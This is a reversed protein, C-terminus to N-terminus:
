SSPGSGEGDSGSTVVRNRGRRKALYLARDAREFLQVPAMRDGAEGSFALGISITVKLQQENWPLRADEVLLRLREALQEGGVQTTERAVLVFEEGGYRALVDEQRITRALTDAVLRLMADGAPHGWTDNIEKFHDIDIALVALARGHRQAASLEASLREEFHRRNYLGTLVDRLAAELLRREYEDEVGSAFSFRLVTVSGVQIKDGGRLNASHVRAGNVYTGNHSDLDTISVEAGRRSVRAHRRSVAEDLLGIDVGSFYPRGIVLPQGPEIRYRQGAQPGALVCLVAHAHEDLEPPTPTDRTFVEETTESPAPPPTEATTTERATPPPSGILGADDGRGTVDV